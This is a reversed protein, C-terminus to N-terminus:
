GGGELRFAPADIRESKCRPCRSPRSARERKKFVFACDNCRAPEIVLREARVGSLRDLHEVVEKERIGVEASLERATYPGRRLAERLAQRVTQPRERPGAGDHPM